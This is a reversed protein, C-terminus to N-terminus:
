SDKSTSWHMRMMGTIVQQQILHWAARCKYGELWHHHHHHHGLLLDNHQSTVTIKDKSWIMRSHLRKHPLHPLLSTVSRVLLCFICVCIASVDKYMAASVQADEVWWSEQKRLIRALSSLRAKIDACRASPAANWHQQTARCETPRQSCLSHITSAVLM